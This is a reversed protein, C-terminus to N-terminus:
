RKAAPKLAPKLSKATKFDVTAAKESILVSSSSHRQNNGWCEAQNLMQFMLNEDDNWECQQYYLEVAKSIAADRNKALYCFSTFRNKGKQSALLAKRERRENRRKERAKTREERWEQVSSLPAIFWIWSIRDVLNPFAKALKMRSVRINSKPSPNIM